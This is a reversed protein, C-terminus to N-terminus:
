SSRYAEAIGCLDQIVVMKTIRGEDFDTVTAYEGRFSKGTKKVTYDEYGLVIVQDGHGVYEPPRLQQFEAIGPLRDFYAAVAQKGRFEGSIPTGDPITVKWVVDEAMHDLLPQINGTSYVEEFISKLLGVNDKSTSSDKSKMAM